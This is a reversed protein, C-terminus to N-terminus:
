ASDLIQEINDLVLLLHKGQLSARVQEALLSNVQEHIGLMQAVVGPVLAADGIPALPVYIVGDAFDPALDWALQLALRTKGVGSPGTLTLLHTASSRLCPCPAPSCNSRTMARRAISVVSWTALPVRPFDPVPRWRRRRSDRLR